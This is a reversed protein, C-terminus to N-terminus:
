REYGLITDRCWRAYDGQEEMEQQTFQGARFTNSRVWVEGAVYYGLSVIRERLFAQWTNTAV